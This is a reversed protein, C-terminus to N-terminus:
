WRQLIIMYVSFYTSLKTKPAPLPPSNTLMFPVSNGNQFKVQTKPHDRLGVLFKKKNGTVALGFDPDTPLCFIKNQFFIKNHLKM